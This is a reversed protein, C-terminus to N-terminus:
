ITSDTSHSFLTFAKTILFALLYYMVIALLAASDFFSEGMRAAPFIGRFPAVFISSLDYIARVIGTMNAGLLLFIFRLGLLITILHAVYWFVQSSKAITHDTKVGADADSSTSVQERVVHTDGVQQTTKVQDVYTDPM